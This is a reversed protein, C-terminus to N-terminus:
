DGSSGLCQSEPWPHPCVKQKIFDSPSDNGEDFEDDYEDVNDEEEEEEEYLNVSEHDGGCGAEGEAPPEIGCLGDDAQVTAALFIVLFLVKLSFKM